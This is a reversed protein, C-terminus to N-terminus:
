YNVLFKAIEIQEENFVPIEDFLSVIPKIRYHEEPPNSSLHIVYGIQTHNGQGFPVKVRSGIQVKPLLAYPVSYTFLRDIEQTKAFNIIVQAYM